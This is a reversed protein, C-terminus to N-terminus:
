QSPGCSVLCAAHALKGGTSSSSKTLSVSVRSVTFLIVACRECCSQDLGLLYATAATAM